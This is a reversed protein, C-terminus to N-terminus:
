IKALAKDLIGITQEAPELGVHLRILSPERGMSDPPFNRPNGCNVSLSEFGGWSPGTHIGDLSKIFDAGDGKLYLLFSLLGSYGNMQTKSLEHGPHSVLGPYYVKAVRPHKELYEAVKTANAEHQLVRLTLTRIGRLMLWADNPALCAGLLARTEGQIRDMLAGGGCAVGAVIDSHGGLYKSATHIVIDVGMDAPNQFVPTSWSNDILTTVGHEKALKTVARIDVIEFFLYSPSELYFMKTNPKIADKFADAEFGDIVTMEVGFRALLKQIVDTTPPYIGRMAVVHDGSSLCSFISASIAGMGSSFCLAKETHELKAILGETYAVTPNSGRSYSFGGLNHPTQFFLSNQYIPPIPAGNREDDLVSACIAQKESLSAARDQLM